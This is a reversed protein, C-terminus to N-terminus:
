LAELDTKEQLLIAKRQEIRAIQQETRALKEETTLEVVEGRSNALLEQRDYSEFLQKRVEQFNEDPFLERIARMPIIKDIEIKTKITLLQETTLTM